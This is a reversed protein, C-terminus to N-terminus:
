CEDGLDPGSFTPGHLDEDLECNLASQIADLAVKCCSRRAEDVQICILEMAAELDFQTVKDKPLSEFKEALMSAVAQSTECGEGEFWLEQVCGDVARLEFAVADGSTGQPCGSNHAEGFHTTRECRGCHYPDEYHDQIRQSQEDQDVM